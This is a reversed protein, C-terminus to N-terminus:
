LPKLSMQETDVSISLLAAFNLAAPCDVRVRSLVIAGDSKANRVARSHHM